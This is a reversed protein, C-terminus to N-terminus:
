WNLAKLAIHWMRNIGSLWGKLYEARKPAPLHELPDDDKEEIIRYVGEFGDGTEIRDIRILRCYRQSKLSSYIEEIDQDTLDSGKKNEMINEYRIFQEYSWQSAERQGDKSGKGTYSTNHFLDAENRIREKFKELDVDEM